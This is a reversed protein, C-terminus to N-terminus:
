PPTRQASYHAALPRLQVFGVTEISTRSLLVSRGIMLAVAQQEAKCGPAKQM